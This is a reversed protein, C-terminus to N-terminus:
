KTLQPKVLEREVWDVLTDCRQALERYQFRIDVETGVFSRLGVDSTAQEQYAPERAPDAVVKGTAAADLLRVDGLRLYVGPDPDAKAYLAKQLQDRQFALAQIQTQLKREVAVDRVKREVEVKREKTVTKTITKVEAKADRAMQFSIGSGFSVILMAIVLLVTTLHPIGDLASKIKNWM